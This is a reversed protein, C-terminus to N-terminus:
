DYKHQGDLEYLLQKLYKFVIFLAQAMMKQDPLLTKIEELALFSAM